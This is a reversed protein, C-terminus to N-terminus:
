DYFVEEDVWGSLTSNYRAGPYGNKPVWTSWLKMSRYIIYPPLKEGSASTCMIVTTYSKGTGPQCSIAHKSDRKVIVSRKGPDDGFGREDVNWIAEPRNNLLKHKTLVDNL